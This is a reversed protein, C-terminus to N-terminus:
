SNYFDYIARWTEYDITGTVPLGFGEQFQKVAAEMAADFIGNEEVFVKPCYRLAINNMYQQMQMVYAGVSNLKIVYGTYDGEPFANGPSTKSLADFYVNQIEEWTATDAEGTEELQFERQFSKVSDTTAQSYVGSDDTIPLVSTYFQSVTDLMLQLYATYTGGHTEVLSYAPAPLVALAYVPGDVNLLSTFRSYISQWTTEGVIGDVTLGFIKQYAKVAATTAAGFSGDFAIQPIDNYYASIIYLYYQVEKVYRGTSGQKLPVDPYVGPRADPAILGNALDTYVEYLKNWTLKGVIGDSALGYFTQFAKVAAETGAGFIGDATISPVASNSLGVIRLYFQMQRVNDGTDGRRLPTGPYVGAAIGNSDNSADQYEEYLADWTKQGVVGDVGLGFIEQFAKVATETGSGFIGDVTLVPITSHFKGVANLWFQIRQVDAGTDGRKLAAGPYVGSVLSGDDEEGESTLEALDKVSVYIYSIKYWTARGVIGDQTLSFQKQFKKVTTEMATGFVGDVALTGFSPYDKAIRNLQRQLISVNSGTSGVRLPTGPYSSPVSGINSTRVIEIDNGYYYKLIQLANKGAEAQTVTGWQKMGPCTVTKGDCYETYYPNKTGTKRVYTNFIDDTIRSMVDFIERGHVYYQDYSTSSTIDFSYGKSKYWETYIRNLALSIQAHINARLAQEPWTPYVESSAVNKIYDRFSVTVNAASAAPKGLHVTIKDPIIVEDLVKGVSPCSQSPSPASAPTTDYLNHEPVDTTDPLPNAPLAGSPQMILQALTTEGDFVQANEVTLFEYGEKEATITFVAYPRATSSEDLSLARPPCPLSMGELIGNEDTTGEFIATIENELYLKVLVNPVPATQGAISAAARVYGTGTCGTCNTATM